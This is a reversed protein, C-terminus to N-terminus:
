ALDVQELCQPMGVDDGVVMRPEFRGLEGAKPGPNGSQLVGKKTHFVM